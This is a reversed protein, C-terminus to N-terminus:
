QKSSLNKLLIKANKVTKLSKQNKELVTKDTSRVSIQLGQPLKGFKGDDAFDYFEDSLLVPEGDFFDVQSFTDFFEYSETDTVYLLATDDGAIIGQLKALVSYNYKSDTGNVDYSCNIVQVNVKGNGDADPAYKEFYKEIKDTQNEIVPSYSFYVIRLDYKPRSICQVLLVAMVFLTFVTGIIHWKYQFWINETKEKFTQPLVAEESPKPPPAIEGNQMKKLNLFEQRARRQEEIIDNDKKEGM